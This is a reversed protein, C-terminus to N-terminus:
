FNRLGKGGHHALGALFGSRIWSNVTQATKTSSWNDAAQGDLNGVTGILKSMFDAVTGTGSLQSSDYTEIKRTSDPFSQGTYNTDAITINSTFTNHPASTTWDLVNSTQNPSTAFPWDVVISNKITVAHNTINSADENVTGVSIGLQNGATGAHMAINGDLTVANQSPYVIIGWSVDQPITIGTVGLSNNVICNTVTNTASATGTTVGLNQMPYCYSLGVSNDSFLNDLSVGGARQHLGAYSAGVSINGKFDYATVQGPTFTNDNM